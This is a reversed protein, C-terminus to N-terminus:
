YPGTGVLRGEAIQGNVGYFGQPVIPLIGLLPMAVASASKLHMTVKNPGTEEVRDIFSYHDRRITKNEPNLIYSFTYVVDAATFPQGDHWKVDDRLEFEITTDDVFAFSKALLPTFDSDGPRQFVLADFAMEGWS